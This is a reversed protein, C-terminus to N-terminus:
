NKLSAVDGTICNKVFSVPTMDEVVSLQYRACEDKM